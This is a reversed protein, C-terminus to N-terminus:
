ENYLHAFGVFHSKTKLHIGRAQLRTFHLDSLISNIQPTDPLRQLSKIIKEHRDEIQSLGETLLEYFEKQEKEEETTLTNSM